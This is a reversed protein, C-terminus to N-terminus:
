IYLLFVFVAVVLLIVLLFFSLKPSFLIMVVSSVVTVVVREAKGPVDEVNVVNVDVRFKMPVKGIRSLKRMM